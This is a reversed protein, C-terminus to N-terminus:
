VPTTEPGPKFRRMCEITEGDSDTEETSWRDAPGYGNRILFATMERQAGHISLSDVDLVSDTEDEHVVRCTVQINGKTLWIEIPGGQESKKTDTM